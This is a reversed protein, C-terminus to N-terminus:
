LLTSMLMNTVIHYSAGDDATSDFIQHFKVIDSFAPTLQFHQKM